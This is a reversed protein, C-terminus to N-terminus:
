EIEKIITRIGDAYAKPETILMISNECYIDTGDIVVGKKALWKHVEINASNVEEGAKQQKQLLKEIYKPIKM